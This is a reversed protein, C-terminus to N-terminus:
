SEAPGRGSARGEIIGDGFGRRWDADNPTGARYPSRETGGFASAYGRGYPSRRAAARDKMYDIMGQTIM